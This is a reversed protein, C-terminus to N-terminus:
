YDFDDFFTGLDEMESIAGDDDTLEALMEFIRGRESQTDHTLYPSIDTLRETLCEQVEEQSLTQELTEQYTPTEYFKWENHLWRERYDHFGLGFFVAVVRGKESPRSATLFLFEGYSNSSIEANHVQTEPHQILEQFRENSVRDFLKEGETFGFGEDSPQRRERREM